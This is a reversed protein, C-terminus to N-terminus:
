TGEGSKAPPAIEPYFHQCACTIYEASPGSQEATAPRFGARRAGALLRDPKAMLGNQRATQVFEELALLRDPADNRISLDRYANFGVAGGSQGDHLRYEGTPDGDAPNDNSGIVRLLGVKGAGEDIASNIQHFGMVSREIRGCPPRDERSDDPDGADECGTLLMM